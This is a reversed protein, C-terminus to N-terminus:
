LKKAEQYKVFIKKDAIFTGLPVLSALFSVAIVNFRWKYRFAVAALLVCYTIFLVGHAMGVLYNPLPMDMLYKLPMTVFLLIYSCGELIATIRFTGILSRLM